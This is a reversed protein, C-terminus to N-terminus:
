WEERERLQSIVKDVQRGWNIATDQIRIREDKNQIQDEMRAWSSLLLRLAVTAQFAPDSEDVNEDMNDEIHRILDYIPHDTNLNIHLVGQNSRVNFIQYGDLQISNFQYSLDNEVLSRAIEAAEDRSQGQEEFQNTLGDIREEQTTNERERDTNTPQERGSAIADRDAKTATETAKTEPTAKGNNSNPPNRKQTFMQRIQRMMASTEDRIEGVIQYILEDDIDLEDLIRQRPRDDNSLTKAADTFNAVMQKNHDLGFLEDSGRRFSVECGWWRNQPNEASGGERLFTNDLIIERDERVVSVGINHRAHRGRPEAGPNQRVFDTRLAEPKVISYRVEVTQEKGDAIHTYHKTQGWEEFMPENDWPSEPVSTPSMLYLPDNAVFTKLDMITNQGRDLFSKATITHIGADIFHRHIRGVERETNKMITNATKWQLKDLKSWVVLTGNRRNFIERSGTNRWVDPIPTEPDPLPVDSDGQEITDADISSHWVSDPGDQWTWVDVRKCQSLSATPLGMGYKGIGRMSQHRTGGGFKLAEFLTRVDMGSGNDLVALGSMRSRTQRATAERTEMCLLEILGADAEISNDILEAIAYATNHYRSDRLARITFSGPFLSRDADKLQELATSQEVM